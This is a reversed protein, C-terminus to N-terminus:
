PHDFAQPSDKAFPMGHTRQVSCSLVYYDPIQLRQFLKTINATCQRCNEVFAFFTTARHYVINKMPGLNRQVYIVSCKNIIANPSLDCMYKCRTVLYLLLTLIIVTFEIRQFLILTSQFIKNQTHDKNKIATERTFM